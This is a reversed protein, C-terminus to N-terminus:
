GRSHYKKRNAENIKYWSERLERMNKPQAKPGGMGNKACYDILAM